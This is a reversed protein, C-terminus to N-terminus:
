RWGALRKEIEPRERRLAMVTRTYRQLEKRFNTNSEGALRSLYRVPMERVEMGALRCAYLMRIYYDGYGYFIDWRRKLELVKAREMLWFGALMDTSELGLARQVFRNFVKSGTQRFRHGPMGGGPLFRSGSALDCGSSKKLELLRPLDHPDHNFDADMLLVQEGRCREIGDGIATALGTGKERHWVDVQGAFRRMKEALYADSGDNSDDVVVLEFDGGAPEELVALLTYILFEVSKRDNRTPLVVSLV